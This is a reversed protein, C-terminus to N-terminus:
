SKILKKVFDLAELWGEFRLKDNDFEFFELDNSINKYEEEIKLLLEHM